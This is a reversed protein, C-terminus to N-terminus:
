WNCNEVTLEKKEGITNIYDRLDQIVDYLEYYKLYTEVKEFNLDKKAKLFQSLISSEIYPPIESDLVLKKNREYNLRYIPNSDLYNDLSGFKKIMKDVTSKGFRLTEFVESNPYEKFFLEKIKNQTVYDLNYFELESKKYFEKFEKTFESFDVIRPVNDSKDGILPHYFEMHREDDIVFKNTISSYQKIDGFKHLQKFDKDPSLILIPEFNCYKRTLFCIIDDAEAKETNIVKFNMYESLVTEFLAIHKSVEKWNIESKARKETRQGKYEPYLDNRWYKHSHDDCCVIFDKYKKYYQKHFELIESFVRGIVVGIFEETIFKGDKKHPKINSTATFTARHFGSSFDYLIM